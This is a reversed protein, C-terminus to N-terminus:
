SHGHLTALHKDRARRGGGRSRSRRDPRAPDRRDYAPLPLTLLAPLTLPLCDRTEYFASALQADRALGIDRLDTYAIARCDAHVDRAIYVLHLGNYAELRINTIVCAFSQIALQRCATHFDAAITVRAYPRAALHLRASWAQDPEILLVPSYRSPSMRRCVRVATYRYNSTDAATFHSPDRARSINERGDCIDAV